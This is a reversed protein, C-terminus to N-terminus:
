HLFLSIVSIILAVVSTIIPIATLWINEIRKIEGVFHNLSEIYLKKNSWISERTELGKENSKDPKTNNILNEVLLVEGYAKRLEKNRFLRKPYKESLIRNLECGLRYYLHAINGYSPLETLLLEKLESDEIYKLGELVGKVDQEKGRKEGEKDEEKLKNRM